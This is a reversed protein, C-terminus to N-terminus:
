SSRWRAALAASLGRRHAVGGQSEDILNGVNDHQGLWREQDVESIVPVPIRGAVAAWARPVSREGAKTHARCAGFKDHAVCRGRDTPWV